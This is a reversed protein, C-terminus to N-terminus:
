KERVNQLPSLPANGRSSELVCRQKRAQIASARQLAQIKFNAVAKAVYACTLCLNCPSCDADPIAPFCLDSEPAIGAFDSHTAM